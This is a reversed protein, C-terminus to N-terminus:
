CNTLLEAVKIKSRLGLSKARCPDKAIWVSMWGIINHVSLNACARDHIVIEYKKIDDIYANRVSGTIM